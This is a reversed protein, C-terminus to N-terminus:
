SLKEDDKLDKAIIVPLKDTEELFAYELHSPLEKLELEPPEEISYKAKTEEAQKLDMPLLQSPDDNLLKELYLIDGEPDYCFDEIEELLVDSEGFPTLTPSSSKVIPEKCFESKTEKSLSPNSVLTPNGSSEDNVWLTIEEGYVNILARGTRLFSRGLILPVRPDAEFDVVVFDTPFHFKRVKVFVDKAVGKPRTISRDALELTMRTPTLEPLSLNKWISLPMLNISAGLDALAHYVDMRSFDCPILFKGPDGLKELLKTRLMALCNENLPVKALEFLKDKNILLSKIKSAFKPMLLLADAFSIDFHLDHFIQFFKEMQNTAKERLKQDNL